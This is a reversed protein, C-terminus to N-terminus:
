ENVVFYRSPDTATHSSGSSSLGSDGPHDFQWGLADSPPRGAALSRHYVGDVYALDRALLDTAAILYREIFKERPLAVIFAVAQGTQARGTQLYIIAV